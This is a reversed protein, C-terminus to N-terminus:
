WKWGVQVGTQLPLISTGSKMRYVPNLFYQLMPEVVLCGKAGFPIEKSASVRLFGVGAPGNMEESSITAGDLQRTVDKVLLFQMGGGVRIVPMQPSMQIGFGALLSSYWISASIHEKQTKLKPNLVLSNGSVTRDFQDPLASKALLYLDEKGYGFDLDGFVSFQNVLKYEIRTGVEFSMRSPFAGNENTLLNRFESKEQNIAYYRVASYRTGALLYFSLRKKSQVKTSDAASAILVTDKSSAKAISDTKPSNLDNAPTETKPSTKEQTSSVAPAEVQAPSNDSPKLNQDQDSNAAVSQKSESESVPKRSSFSVNDKESGASKSESQAIPTVGKRSKRVAVSGEVRHSSKGFDTKRRTSKSQNAAAPERSVEEKEVGESEPLSGDQSKDEKTSITALVQDSREPNQNTRKASAKGAKQSEGEEMESSANQINSDALDQTQNLHNNETKHKAISSNASSTLLEEQKGAGPVNLLTSESLAHHPNQELELAHFFTTSVGSVFVIAAALLWWAPRKKSRREALQSQLSALIEPNPERGFDRLRDQLSGQEREM